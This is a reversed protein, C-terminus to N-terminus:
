PRILPILAPTRACYEEWAPGFRRHLEREELYIMIGGTVLAFVFLGYCALTAAGLMFTFMTSLHGLYMPHRVIGYIGGTVLTDYRRRRGLEYRGLARPLTLARASRTYLILSFTGLFPAVAWGQSGDHIAALRWPYSLWLALGCVATALPALVAWKYRCSRWEEAFPHIILWYIPITAYLSCALWSALRLAQTLPVSVSGHM